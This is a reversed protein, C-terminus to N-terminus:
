FIVRNKICVGFKTPINVNGLQDNGSITGLEIKWNWIFNESGLGGAFNNKKSKKINLTGMVIKKIKEDM